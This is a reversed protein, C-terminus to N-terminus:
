VQLPCTEREDSTALVMSRPVTFPPLLCPLCFFLHSSLVLDLLATSFLSFHLFSTTFDDTTGWRGRCNLHHLIDYELWLKGALNWRKDALHRHCSEYPSLMVNQFLSKDAFIRRRDACHRRSSDEPCVMVDQFWLKGALIWRRDALHSHCSEKLCVM